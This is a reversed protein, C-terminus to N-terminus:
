KLMEEGKLIKTNLAKCQPCPHLHTETEFEHGCEMCRSEAKIRNIQIRSSELMTGKVAVELAFNLAEIEVGSMSGIDLEMESISIASYQKAQETALDIISLAISMEHM